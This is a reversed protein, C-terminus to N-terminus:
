AKEERDVKALVLAGVVAGALILGLVILAPSYYTLMQESLAQLTVDGEPKEWSTLGSYLYLAGIFLMVGLGLIAGLVKRPGEKTYLWAERRVLMITFIILVVVAGVYVAVQFMAVFTADLMVFFMAVGLLSIALAIAGYILERFELAVIAAGITVVSVAVFAPDTM